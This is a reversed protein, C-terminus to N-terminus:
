LTSRKFDYKSLIKSIKEYDAKVKRLEHSKYGIIKIADDYKM